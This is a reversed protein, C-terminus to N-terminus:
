QWISTCRNDPIALDNLKTKSRQDISKRGSINPDLFVNVIRQNSDVIVNGQDPCRIFHEEGPFHVVATRIYHIKNTLLIAPKDGTDRIVTSFIALLVSSGVETTRHAHEGVLAALADLFDRASRPHLM